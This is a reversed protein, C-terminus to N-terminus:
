NPPSTATTRPGAPRFRPNEFLRINQLRTLQGRLQRLENEYSEFDRYCSAVVDDVPVAEGPLM